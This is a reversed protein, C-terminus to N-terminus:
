AGFLGMFSEHVFNVGRVIGLLGHDAELVEVGQAHNRRVFLEEKKVAMDLDRALRFLPQVVDFGGHLHGDLGLHFVTNLTETEL